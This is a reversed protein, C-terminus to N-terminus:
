KSMERVLEQVNARRASVQHLDFAVAHLPRPDEATIQQDHVLPDVGLGSLDDDAHHVLLRQDLVEGEHATVRHQARRVSFVRVTEDHLPVVEIYPAHDSMADTVMPSISRPYSVNAAVSSKGNNCSIRLKVEGWRVKSDGNRLHHCAAAPLENLAYRGIGPRRLSHKSACVAIPYM